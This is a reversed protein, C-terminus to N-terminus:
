AYNGASHTNDPTAGAILGGICLACILSVVFTVGLDANFEAPQFLILAEIGIATAGIAIDLLRGRKLGGVLWTFGVAIIIAGIVLGLGPRANLGPIAEFATYILDPKATALPLALVALNVIFIGLLTIHSTKYRMLAALFLTFMAVGLASWWLTNRNM